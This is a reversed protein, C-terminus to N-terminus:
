EILRTVQVSTGFNGPGDTEGWPVIDCEVQADIRKYPSTSVNTIRAAAFGIIKIRGTPNSCDQRDYVPVHVLWTGDEGKKSDFLTVFDMFAAAITGGTFNYANEGAITEPSVYTGSTLDQVIDRLKATNAPAEDFVHWGACGTATGTPFFQIGSNEGCPTERSTFWASAIGFPVDGMGPPMSRVGSLINVTADAKVAMSRVGFIQALSTALTGNASDDRRATVAIANVGTSASTFTKTSGNWIGYVVDSPGVMIPVGAAFNQLTYDNVKSLVRARDADTLPYTTYDVNNGLHNYIRGLEATGAMAGSDAVNQLQAKTAMGYGIDIVLACFGLLMTTALAMFILIAGRNNRDAAPQKM